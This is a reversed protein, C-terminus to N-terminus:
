QGQMRLLKRVLHRGDGDSALADDQRGWPALDGGLSPSIPSRLGARIAERILVSVPESGAVAAARITKALNPDARFTFSTSM